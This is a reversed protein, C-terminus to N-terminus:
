LEAVDLGELATDARGPGEWTSGYIVEWDFRVTVTAAHLHPLTRLVGGHCKRLAVKKDSTGANSGVLGFWYMEVVKVTYRV